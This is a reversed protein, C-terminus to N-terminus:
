CLSRAIRPGVMRTFWLPMKKWMEIKRQFSPNEPNVERLPRGPPTWYQYNLEVPQPGWQKKFQYTGAGVTCRGFDFTGAGNLCAHKIVTWYLLNNPCLNNYEVMTAAWPIEVLGNFQTVFAAGLTLKDQRVVFVRSSSPLSELTAAMLKRSFPPTGLQRMRITYLDYFEDLLEAGGDAPVINSKEAKRVQNRVKADFGKWLKEPDADLGLHMCIKGERRPLDYPMPTVNRFEISDCGLQGAIRAAEDYLPAIAEASALPGGYTSYAQSVLRNGFLRSKVHMLPLVGAIRDTERAVLYYPRYGGAAVAVQSWAFTHGLRADARAAVFADVNPDASQLVSIDM